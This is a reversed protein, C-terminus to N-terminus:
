LCEKFRKVGILTGNLTFTTGNTGGAIPTQAEVPAIQPPGGFNTVVAGVVAAIAPTGNVIAAVDDLTSTIASGGDTALTVQVHIGGVLAVSLPINPAGPDILQITNGNGATGMLAAFFLISETVVAFSVSAFTGNSSALFDFILAGGMTCVIEPEFPFGFANDGSFGSAGYAGGTLILDNMLPNGQSDRIRVFAPLFAAGGQTLGCAPFVIARLVYPVDDDLQVPLNLTQLKGTAGVLFSFEILYLEDRYGSPTEYAGQPKYLANVDYCGPRMTM